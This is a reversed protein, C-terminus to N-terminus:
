IHILSLKEAERRIPKFNEDLYGKRILAKAVEQVELPDMLLRLGIEHIGRGSSLLRFIRTERESLGKPREKIAEGKVKDLEDIRRELYQFIQETVGRGGESVEVSVAQKATPTITPKAVEEEMAKVAEREERIPIHIPPTPTTIGEKLSFRRWDHYEKEWIFEYRKLESVVEAATPDYEAILTPNINGLVLHANSFVEPMLKRASVLIAQINAHRGRTTISLVDYKEAEEVILLIPRDWRVQTMRKLLESIILRECKSDLINMRISLNESSSAIRNIVEKVVHDVDSWVNFILFTKFLENDVEPITKGYNITYPEFDYEGHPDIVIIRKKMILSPIIFNKIMYTKGHRTPAYFYLNGVEPDLVEFPIEPKPKPPKTVEIIRTPKERVEVERIMASPKEAAEVREVEPAPKAPKAPKAVETTTPPQTVVPQVTPPPTMTEISTGSLIRRNIKAGPALKVTKETSVADVIANEYLIIDNLSDVVGNVRANRQITINGESLVHGDIITGEGVEVGKFAKISGHIRCNKGLRLFGQVVINSRMETGDPIAVDGTVRLIDSPAKVRAEARAKEMVPIDPKEEHITDEPIERPGRDKRKFFELFAPILPVVLLTLPLLALVSM